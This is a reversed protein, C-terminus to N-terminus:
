AAEGRYNKVYDIRHRAEILRRIETADTVLEYTNGDLDAIVQGVFEDIGTKDGGARAVEHVAINYHSITSATAQTNKTAWLRPGGDPLKRAYFPASIKRAIGSASALERASRRKASARDELQRRANVEHAIQRRLRAASRQAQTTGTAAIRQRHAAIRQRNRRRAQALQASRSRAM